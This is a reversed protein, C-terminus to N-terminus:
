FHHFEGNKRLKGSRTVGCRGMGVEAISWAARPQSRVSVEADDALRAAMAHAVYTRRIEPDQCFGMAFGMPLVM